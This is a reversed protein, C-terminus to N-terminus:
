RTFNVYLGSGRYSFNWTSRCGARDTVPAACRQYTFRPFTRCGWAWGGVPWWWDNGNWRARRQNRSADWPAPTVRLLPQDNVVLDRPQIKGPAEAATEMVPKGSADYWVDKASAFSALLLVGFAIMKM